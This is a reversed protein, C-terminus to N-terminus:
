YKASRWVWMKKYSLTGKRALQQSGAMRYPAWSCPVARTKRFHANTSTLKARENRREQEPRTVFCCLQYGSETRFVDLLHGPKRPSNPIIHNARIINQQLLINKKVRPQRTLRCASLRAIASRILTDRAKRLMRM